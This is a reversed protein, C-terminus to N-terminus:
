ARVAHALRIEALTAGAEPRLQFQARDGYALALRAALNQLGIGQGSSSGLMQGTNQVALLLDSGQRALLIRVEGGAASTAIGHKIANEVLPQLLLPPVELSELAPDWDWAVSLRSGLRLQEVALFRRVLEREEALSIRPRGGLAVLQKYIEALDQVGQRGAELDERVLQSLGNLANLLAHPSMQSQLLTWQAERAKSLAEAKRARRREWAAILHGAFAYQTAQLAFVMLWHTTQRLAPAEERFVYGLVLSECAVMGLCQCLGRSFSTLPRNDGTWQWPLPSLIFLATCTWLIYIGEGMWSPRAVGLNPPSLLGLLELLVLMGLSLLISLATLGMLLRDMFRRPVARLADQLRM